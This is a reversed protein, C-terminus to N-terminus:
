QTSRRASAEIQKRKDDVKAVARLNSLFERVRQQRLQELERQRLM